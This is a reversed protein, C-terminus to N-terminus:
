IRGYYNKYYKKIKKYFNIPDNVSWSFDGDDYREFKKGIYEKVIDERYM